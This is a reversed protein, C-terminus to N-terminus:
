VDILCDKEKGDESWEEGAWEGVFGRRGEREAVGAVGSLELPRGRGRSYRVAYAAGGGGGGERDSAPWGRVM